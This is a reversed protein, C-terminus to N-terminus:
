RNIFDFLENENPEINIFKNIYDKHIWKEDFHIQIFNKETNLKYRDNLINLADDYFLFNM